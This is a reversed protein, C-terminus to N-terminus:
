SKEFFRSIAMRARDGCPYGYIKRVTVNWPLGSIYRYEIIQRVETHEVTDIFEELSILCDQLRNARERLLRTLRDHAAM